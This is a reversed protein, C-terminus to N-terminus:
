RQMVGDLMKDHVEDLKRDTYEAWGRQEISIDDLLGRLKRQLMAVRLEAKKWQGAKHAADLSELCVRLATMMDDLEADGRHADGKNYFEVASAFAQDAFTLAKEVRRAPNPESKLDATISAQGYLTTAALAIALLMRKM